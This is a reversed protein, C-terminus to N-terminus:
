RRGAGCFFAFFEHFIATKPQCTREKKTLYRNRECAESAGPKHIHAYISRPFRSVLAIGDVILLLFAEHVREQGLGVFNLPFPINYVSFTHHESAKGALDGRNQAAFVLGGVSGVNIGAIMHDDDVGILDHQGAVLQGILNIIMVGTVDAM